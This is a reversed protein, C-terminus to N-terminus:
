VLEAITKPNTADLHAATMWTGQSGDLLGPAFMLFFNPQFSDWKVKRVSSVSATRIDGAIDFQLTDGLKLDLEQMYETSVSVLPKGTDATTFWRGETIENDPRLTETWTINQDRTAFERGRPTAFKLEDVPKGNIHTMRARVMPLARTREAGRQELFRTFDQHQDPPINM